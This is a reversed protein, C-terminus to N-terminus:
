RFDGYRQIVSDPPNSGDCAARVLEEEDHPLWTDAILWRLAEPRPPVELTSGTATKRTLVLALKWGHILRFQLLWEEFPMMMKWEGTLAWHGCIDDLRERQRSVLARLGDADVPLDEPRSRRGSAVTQQLVEALEDLTVPPIMCPKPVYDVTLM